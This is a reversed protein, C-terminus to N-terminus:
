ATKEKLYKQEINHEWEEATPEKIIGVGNYYIDVQQYRKGKIKKPASVVIKEIFEHVLEPTLENPQTVKKVNMIFSQLSDIKSTESNLEQELTPVREKLEKQEAELSLSLTAFRDDSIKDNANDEYLKQILTDIEKIRKKSKELKQKKSTLEKERQATFADLQFMAFEKEYATVFYFVRRMNELVIDYIVKERIYHMSCVDTDKRFSSCFFNAQEHKYNNTSSYYMKEGCDACYVLGSFM